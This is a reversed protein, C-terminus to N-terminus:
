NDPVEEAVKYIEFRTWAGHKDSSIVIPQISGIKTWEIKRNSNWHFLLFISSVVAETYLVPDQAEPYSKSVNKAPFINLEHKFEWKECKIRM